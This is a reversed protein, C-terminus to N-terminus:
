RTPQLIRRPEGSAKPADAAHLHRALSRARKPQTCQCRRGWGLFWSKLSPSSSALHMSMTKTPGARHAGGLPGMGSHGCGQVAARGRAQPGLAGSPSPCRSLCPRHGADRGLDRDHAQGEAQRPRPRPRPQARRHLLHRPWDPSRNGETHSPTVISDWRAAAFGLPSGRWRCVDATPWQCKFHENRSCAPKQHAQEKKSCARSPSPLSARSAPLQEHVHQTVSGKGCPSLACSSTLRDRRRSPTLRFPTLGTNESTVHAGRSARAPTLPWTREGYSSRM